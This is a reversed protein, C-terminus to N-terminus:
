VRYGGREAIAKIEDNEQVDCYYWYCVQSNGSKILAERVDARDEVAWCYCYCAESDGSKILAAVVDDRDEIYQCYASCVDGKGSTIIEKAVLDLVKQPITKSFRGLSEWCWYDDIQKAIEEYNNKILFDKLWRTTPEFLIVVGKQLLGSTREIRLM